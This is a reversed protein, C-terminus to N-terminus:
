YDDYMFTIVFDYIVNSNHLVNQVTKTHCNTSEMMNQPTESENTFLVLVNKHKLGAKEMRCHWDHGIFTFWVLSHNMLMAFYIIAYM